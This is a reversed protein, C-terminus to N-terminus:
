ATSLRGPRGSFRIRGCSLYDGARSVRPRLITTAADRGSRVLPRV